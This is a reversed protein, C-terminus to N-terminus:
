GEHLCAKYCELQAVAMIAVDTITKESNCIKVFEIDKMQTVKSEGGFSLYKVGGWERVVFSELQYSIGHLFEM